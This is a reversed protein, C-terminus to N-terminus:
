VSKEKNHAGCKNEFLSVHKYNHNHEEVYSYLYNLVYSLRSRLNRM